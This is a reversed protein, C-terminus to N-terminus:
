KIVSQAAVIPGLSFMGEQFSSVDRLYFSAFVGKSRWSAARLIEDVSVGNFEAWSTSLARVEHAKVRALKLEQHNQGTTEYASRIATIIWRSISLVSIERTSADQKYPVFLRTRDKRIKVDKTRRWYEKLARVPCLEADAGEEPALNTLAPIVLPPLIEDQKQTKARFKPDFSAEFKQSEAFTGPFRVSRFTLAHLESVRKSSALSLLFVTKLTLLKLSIKQIPEFPHGKLHLLVLGLDWNPATKVKPPRENALNSILDHLVGHWASDWKQM